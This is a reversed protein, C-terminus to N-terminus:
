FAKPQICLLAGVHRPGALRQIKEHGIESKKIELYVGSLAHTEFEDTLFAKTVGELKSWTGNNM